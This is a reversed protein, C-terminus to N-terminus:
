GATKPTLFTALEPCVPYIIEATRKRLEPKDGEKAWRIALGAVEPVKKRLHETAEPKQLFDGIKKLLADEGHKVMFSNAEPIGFATGFLDNITAVCM